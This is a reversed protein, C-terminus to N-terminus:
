DIRLLRRANGNMLKERDELSLPIQEAWQSGPLNEVFPYDVSYLIRDIGMEMISCMLAPTSFHGSTTIWFHKCFKERFDVTKNGGRSLGHHIRWLSFPLSEGQHGLILKLNPYEDLVGSLIMRIGQTATDMTFGWAAASLAPFDAAYDKFYTDIVASPLLSPHMYIPVDLSQAV